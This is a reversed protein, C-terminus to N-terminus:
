FGELIFVYIYIMHQFNSWTTDCNTMSSYIVGDGKLDFTVKWLSSIAEIDNMQVYNVNVLVFKDIVDSVFSSKIAISTQFLYNESASWHSLSIYKYKHIRIFRIFNSLGIFFANMLRSITVTEPSSYWLSRVTEGCMAIAFHAFYCMQLRSLTSILDACLYLSIM